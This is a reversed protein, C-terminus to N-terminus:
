GAERSSTAKEGKNFRKWVLVGRQSRKKEGGFEVRKKFVPTKDESQQGGRSALEDTEEEGGLPFGETEEKGSVSTSSGSKNSTPSSKLYRLRRRSIGKVPRERAERRLIYEKVQIRCGERRRSNEGVLRKQVGGKKRSRHTDSNREAESVREQVSEWFKRKWGIRNWMPRRRLALISQKVEKIELLTKGNGSLSAHCRVQSLLFGGWIIRKVM